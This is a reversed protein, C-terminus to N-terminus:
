ARRGAIEAAMKRARRSTIEDPESPEPPAADGRKRRGAVNLLRALGSALEERIMPVLEGRLAALFATMAGARLADVEKQPVVALGLKALAEVAAKLDIGDNSNAQNM